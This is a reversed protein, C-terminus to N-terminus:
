GDLKCDFKELLTDLEELSRYQLKLLGGGERHHSVEATYALGRRSVKEILGALEEGTHYRFQLYGGGTKKKHVLRVPFGTAEGILSLLRNIDPDFDKEGRRSYADHGSFEKVLQETARVSLQKSAIRNAVTLQARPNLSVLLRAHGYEIGGRQAGKIVLDQVSPLLDLLRIHHTVSERSFQGKTDEAITAHTEGFEDALRKFTRALEIPNLDKRFCNEYLAIKLATRDDVGYRVVVDISELGAIQAARWRSEGALIEFDYGPDRCPRVVIPQIIGVDRISAAIEAITKEDFDSRPQFRGRRIRDIGVNPRYEKRGVELLEAPLAM